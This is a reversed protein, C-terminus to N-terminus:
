ATTFDLLVKGFNKRNQIHRHADPAKEFSFTSDIVPHINHNNVLNILNKVSRNVKWEYGKFECSTKDTYDIIQWDQDAAECKDKESYDALGNNVDQWEYDATACSEQDNYQQPYWIGDINECSSQTNKGVISCCSNTDCCQKGKCYSGDASCYNNIKGGPDQSIFDRRFSITPVGLLLLLKSSKIVDM